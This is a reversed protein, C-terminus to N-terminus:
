SNKRVPIGSINEDKPVEGFYKSKRRDMETCYCVVFM